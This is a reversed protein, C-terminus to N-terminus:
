RRNERPVPTHAPLRDFAPKARGATPAPSPRNAPPSEFRAAASVAARLRESDSAARFALTGPGLCRCGVVNFPSLLHCFPFPCTGVGAGAVCHGDGDVTAIEGVIRRQQTHTVPVLYGKNAGGAGEFC